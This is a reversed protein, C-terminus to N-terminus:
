NLSQYKSTFHLLYLYNTINKGSSKWFLKRAMQIFRGGSCLEPTDILLQNIQTSESRGGQNRIYEKIKEVGYGDGVTDIHGGESWFHGGWLEEKVEPFKKFVEKTTISKCVKMIQSPSYRPRTEVLIHLHDGDTGVAHFKFYYRQEIGNFIIKLYDRIEDSIIDKRYKVVFVM